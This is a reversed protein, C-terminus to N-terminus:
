ESSLKPSAVEETLPPKTQTRQPAPICLERPRFVLPPEPVSHTLQAPDCPWQTDAQIGARWSGAALLVLFLLSALIGGLGCLIGLRKM